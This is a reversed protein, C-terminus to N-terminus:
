YKEHDDLSVEDLVLVGFRAITRWSFLRVTDYNSVM